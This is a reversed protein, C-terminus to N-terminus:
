VSYVDGPRHTSRPFGNIEVEVDTWRGTGQNVPINPVLDSVTREILVKTPIHWIHFV